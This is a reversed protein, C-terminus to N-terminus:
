DATVFIAAIDNTVDSGDKALVVIGKSGDVESLDTDIFVVQTDDTMNYYTSGVLVMDGTVVMDAGTADVYEGTLTIKNDKNVTNDKDFTYLGAADIVKTGSNPGTLEVTEGNAYTATYVRENVGDENMALTYVTNDIYVYEEVTDAALAAVMFVVNATAIDVKTDVGSTVVAIATEDATTPLNKVGTYVTATEKTSNYAVYITSSKVLVTKDTNVVYSTDDYSVNSLDATYVSNEDCPTGDAEIADLAELTIVGEEITYGYVADDLYTALPTASVTAVVPDGSLTIAVDLGDIYWTGEEKYLAVEYTGVTGDALVARVEAYPTSGKISTSVKAYADVVLAYDTSANAIADTHVVFGYQDVYYNAADESNVFTTGSKAYAGVTYASGDITLTTVSDKTKTATQTGEFSETPYVYAKSGILCYTVVDGKELDAVLAITDTIDEDAYDVYNNSDISYTVNGTKKDTTVKGAEVTKYAVTVVDTIEKDSNAFFEVVKGNATLAAIQEAITKASTTLVLQTVSTKGTHDVNAGGVVATFTADTVNEVKISSTSNVLKYGKLAAAVDDATTKATFVAVAEDVYTGVDDTKYDWSHAPRGFADRDAATLALDKFYKECFELTGDQANTADSFDRGAIADVEDAKSSNSVVIDGITIKSDNEYEVMTAKLTNLAYLCAEERTLAKAGVFDGELGADLGINLARKAVQISWNTGVYNENVADYGLAGLLMKMFAYGTLPAAPKFTGDAYGSIIGENACYAIYGAFVNDVAVDSFPAENAVLADATTPGLLMNCIIKAAAGRTLGATPNFSGDAYGGVVGIATMVDVAEEYTISDADTFDEAGASITVLSFTMVLALVLALFKKM